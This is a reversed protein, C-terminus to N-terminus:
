YRFMRDASAIALALPVLGKGLYGLALGGEEWYYFISFLYGAALVFGLGFLVKGAKDSWFPIRDGCFPCIPEVFGIREGCGPCPLKTDYNRKKPTIKTEKM